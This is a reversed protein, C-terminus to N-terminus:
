IRKNEVKTDYWEGSYVHKIVDLYNRIQNSLISDYGYVKDIILNYNSICSKLAEYLSDTNYYEFGYNFCYEEISGGNAKYLIPM